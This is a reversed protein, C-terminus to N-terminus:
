RFAAKVEPNNLVILSWIGFGIGLLCCCGPLVFMATISGAVALGYSQLARMKIAGLITVVCLLISLFSICSSAYLIPVVDKDVGQGNAQVIGSCTGILCAVIGLIAQVLLAIAPANVKARIAAVGGDSRREGDEDARERRRSPRAPAEEEMPPPPPPPSAGPEEATFITQCSPCKVKKGILNDPVGLTRNCNPCQVNIAM